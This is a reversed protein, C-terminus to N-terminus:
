SISKTLYAIYYIRVPTTSYGFYVQLYFLSLPHVELGKINKLVTTNKNTLALASGQAAVPTRRSQDKREISTKNANAL